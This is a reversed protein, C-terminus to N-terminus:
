NTSGGTGGTGKGAQLAARAQVKAILEAATPVPRRDHGKRKRYALFEEDSMAEIRDAEDEALLKMLYEGGRDPDPKEPTSM